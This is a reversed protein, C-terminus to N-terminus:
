DQTKPEHATDHTGGERYALDARFLEKARTFAPEQYVGKNREFWVKKPKPPDENAIFDTTAADYDLLVKWVRRKYAEILEDHGVIRIPTIESCLRTGIPLVNIPYKCMEPEWVALSPSLIARVELLDYWKRGPQEGPIDTFEDVMYQALAEDISSFATLPGAGEVPKTTERLRYFVAADSSIVSSRWNGRLDKKKVVKYLTVENM